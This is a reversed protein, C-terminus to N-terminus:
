KEKPEEKKERRILKMLPKRGYKVALLLIIGILITPAILPNRSLIGDAGVLSSSITNFNSAIRRYFPRNDDIKTNEALVEEKSAAEGISEDIKETIAAVANGTAELMVNYFGEPVEQSLDFALLKGPDVSIKKTIPYKRLENQVIFTLEDAFPVNGINEIFVSQNEYKIKVERLASVNVAAQSQLNKYAGTLIYNGPKAYQSFEYEIKENSQVTKTFIKEENQYAMELEVSDNILDDAQDYLYPTIGIKAGPNISHESVELNIYNQVPIIKLEVSGYGINNKSDSATIEITHKGSKINKPLEILVDFKGDVADAQYTSNDLEVEVNAKLLNNGFAENVVGVIKVPESPLATIKANVPLVDLKHTVEFASSVKKEIILNDNTTLDGTIMCKGLMSSTATLEPVDIATRSNQELSLPTTYYQLRYDDCSITLKFLGDFDTEQLVSASARIKNGLNYIGQEALITVDALVAPVILFIALFLFLKKM